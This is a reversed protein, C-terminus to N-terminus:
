KKVRGVGVFRKRSYENDMDSLVVGKSVSAHVYKNQDLYIGVHSVGKGEYDFFVLDGERINKLKIKETKLYMDRSTRPLKVEYVKLFVAHVFGSCDVGKHDNGGYRYPTGMWQAIEQRLAKQIHLDRLDVKNNAPKSALRRTHCSSFFLSFLILVLFIRQM